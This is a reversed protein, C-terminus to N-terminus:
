STGLCQSGCASSWAESVDVARAAGQVTGVNVRVVPVHGKVEGCVGLVSMKPLIKQM